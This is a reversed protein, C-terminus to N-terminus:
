HKEDAIRKQRQYTHTQIRINVPSNMQQKQKISFYIKASILNGYQQKPFDFSHKLHKLHKLHKM